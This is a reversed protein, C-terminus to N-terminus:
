RTQPSWSVKAVGAQRTLKRLLQPAKTDFVQSRWSVHCRLEWTEPTMSYSATYSFSCSRVTYQEAALGARIEQESPGGETMVVTLDGQREQKMRGEFGRLGALVIVGIAVGGLGLAIQGGGFCLGIVTVFWLTAATTVGLVLNDRRVIAGGGIFGMGSLIGLPLRMLDLTVFSDPAKGAAALLLNAQIMAVCAALAVLMTTRLGAPRGHEGRDYGIVAGAAATCLLRLAIDSWEPHLPM